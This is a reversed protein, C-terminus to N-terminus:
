EGRSNTSRTYPRASSREPRAAPRRLVSGMRRLLRRTRGREIRDLEASVRELKASTRELREELKERREEERRLRSKLRENKRELGGADLEFWEGLTIARLMDARPDPAEAAPEGDFFRQLRRDEVLRGARLESEIAGDDMVQKAYHAPLEGAQQARYMRRLESNFKANPNQETARGGVLIKREFQAYSRLPFHLVDIPFWGPVIRLGEGAVSHNGSRVEVDPLARHAVKPLVFHPGWNLGGAKGEGAEEKAATWEEITPVGRVQAFVMRDFVGTGAEEPRPVFNARPATLVGFEPPVREFIEKLTGARPWWFEDADNNIVWDAGFHTAALRAMRTVWERQSYDDGTERIVHVLGRRAYRGLIEPTADESNNDTAIVFDVGQALHYELNAELVDEENRLLLTMVLRM